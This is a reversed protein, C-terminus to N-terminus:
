DAVTLEAAAQQHLKFVARKVEAYPAQNRLADLLPGWTAAPLDSHGALEALRDVWAQFQEQDLLGRGLAEKAPGKTAPPRHTHSLNRPSYVLLLLNSRIALELLAAHSADYQKELVGALKPGQDDLLFAVVTVVPDQQPTADPLPTWEVHLRRAASAAQELIPQYREAPLGKAYIAAGLSWRSGLQWAAKATHSERPSQRSVAPPVESAESKATPGSEASPQTSTEEPQPSVPLDESLRSALAPDAQQTVQETQDPQYHIEQWCGMLSGSAATLLALGTRRVIRQFPINMTQLGTGRKGQMAGEIPEPTTQVFDLSWRTYRVIPPVRIAFHGGEPRALFSPLEYSPPM